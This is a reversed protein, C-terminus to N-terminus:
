VIMDCGKRGGGEERGRKRGEMLKTYTLIQINLHIDVCSYVHTCICTSALLGRTNDGAMSNEKNKLCPRVPRSSVCQVISDLWHGRETKAKKTNANCAHVLVAPKPKHTRPVSNRDVFSM